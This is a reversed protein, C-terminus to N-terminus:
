WKKFFFVSETKDRNLTLMNRRMYSETSEFISNIECLLNEDFKFHCIICTM